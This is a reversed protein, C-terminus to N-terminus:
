AALTDIAERIRSRVSPPAAIRLESRGSPRAIRGPLHIWEFRLTRISRFLSRTTRKRSNKKPTAIGAQVQFDRVFNHTLANLIQWACNADWDQAIVSAFALGSKLEGITHEHAGRGAMFHWVTREDVSKNTAVMSYEYYGDDPQFLDLQFGRAPKGSIRKRFVVVRERRKWKAIEVQMSFADVTRTVSRWQRRSSIRERVNLWDWLPFRIAYEVGSTTLLDLVPKQCFAADLRVEIPVAGVRERADTILEELREVAGVSDHNNGSRNWVGLLQGTQALQATLPYYSPDKPHHPHFGREAGEASEGTRVVTGDVDITIRALAMASWTTYAVDRLLEQLRDRYGLTLGALWRSLTRASPLCQLRVFRLFIPDCGLQALHAIRAGGVILLAIVCLMMRWSSYDNDFERDEFIERIRGLWGSRVLYRDILLLGSHSTLGEDTYTIPLSSKVFTRILRQSHRM